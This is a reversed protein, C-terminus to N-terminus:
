RFDRPVDMAFYVSYESDLLAAVSSNVTGADLPPPPNSSHASGLITALVYRGVANVFYGWLGAEEGENPPSFPSRPRRAYKVLYVDTVEALPELALEEVIDQGRATNSDPVKSLASATISNSDRSIATGNNRLSAPDSGASGSPAGVV